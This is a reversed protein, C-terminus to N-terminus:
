KWKISCGFQKTEAEKPSEGSLLAEVADRVYHQEVKAPDMNDDFAGMYAIKRDADLVFVHPTTTAGYAKATEQSADHVYPFNFENDQAHTAADDLTEARHVHIAVLKVPQGSYQEAFEKMRGEYARAVPCGNCTFVVVLAKADAFDSMETATGDLSVLDVWSPAAQGIDVMSNFEGAHVNSLVGFSILCVLFMRQIVAKGLYM